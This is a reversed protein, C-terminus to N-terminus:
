FEYAFVQLVKDFQYSIARLSFIRRSFSRLKKLGNMAAALVPPCSGAFRSVKVLSDTASGPKPPKSVHAYLANGAGLTDLCLVYAVDSMLGGEVVDFLWIKDRLLKSHQDWPLACM